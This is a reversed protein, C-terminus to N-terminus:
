SQSAIDNCAPDLSRFHNPTNDVLLATLKTDIREASWTEPIGIIGPGDERLLPRFDKINSTAIIRGQSVALDYVKPDPLGELHLDKV